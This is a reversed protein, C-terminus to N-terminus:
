KLRLFRSRFKAYMLSDNIVLTTAFLSYSSIFGFIVFLWKSEYINQSSLSLQYSVRSYLAFSTILAIFLLCLTYKFSNLIRTYDGDADLFKVFDDDSSSMIIALAAFFVAFIISLMSIGVEYIRATFLLPISDPLYFILGIAIIVSAAFDWSIIIDRIRM